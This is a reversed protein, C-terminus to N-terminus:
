INKNRRGSVQVTVQNEILRDKFFDNLDENNKRKRNLYNMDEKELSGIFVNKNWTEIDTKIYIEPVMEVKLINDTFKIKKNNYYKLM